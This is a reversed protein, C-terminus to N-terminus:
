GQAQGLMAICSPSDHCALYYCTLGAVVNGHTAELDFRCVSVILHLDQLFSSSIMPEHDHVIFSVDLSEFCLSLSYRPMWRIHVNPVNRNTTTSTLPPCPHLLCPPCRLCGRPHTLSAPNALCALCMLGPHKSSASFGLSRVDTHHASYVVRSRHASWSSANQMLSALM